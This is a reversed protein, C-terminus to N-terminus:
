LCAAIRVRRSRLRRQQVEQPVRQLGLPDARHALKHALPDPDRAGALTLVSQTNSPVQGPLYCVSV